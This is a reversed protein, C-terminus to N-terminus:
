LAAGPYIGPNPMAQITHFAIQDRLRQTGLDPIGWRPPAELRWDARLVTNQLTAFAIYGNFPQFGAPLPIGFGYGPKTGTFSGDVYLYVTSGERLVRATGSFTQVAPDFQTNIWAGIDRWGTSPLTAHIIPM